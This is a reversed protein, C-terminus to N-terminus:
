LWFGPFREKFAKSEIESLVQPSSFFLEEDPVDSDNLNLTFGIYMSLAATLIKRPLKKNTVDEIYGYLKGDGLDTIHETTRDYTPYLVVVRGINNINNGNARFRM